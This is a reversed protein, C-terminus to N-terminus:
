LGNETSSGKLLQLLRLRLKEKVEVSLEASDEGFMTNYREYTDMLKALENLEHDLARKNYQRNYSITPYYNINLWDFWVRWLKHEANELNTAKRRILAALKDDYQEIQEGSRSARVLDESRLMAVQSLKQVKNDILERIESIAALEPSKFDFVHTPEGSLSAAVLVKSGPEAGLNGGNIQDTTEDVITVPHAGYTIAAYIEAMDGYISRQIQAVDTVVTTGVNNYVKVSQYITTLPIYGLENVQVIRWAGDGLDELNASDIEPEYDEDEGVWVTEFSDATIHRYVKYDDAEELCIVVSELSLSGDERYSYKWNTIEEPKHIRWKPVSNGEPKICSVHCVGYITTYIDVLAMFENISNGEGDVNVIFDEVENNVPLDRQPPNRFLISNYESVILKVYNYLPTNDLKESYFSGDDFNSNNLDKASSVTTVAATSKGIVTGSDDTVYTNITESPTSLDSSYQRLYKGNKWETGGYYADRSLKWDKIYREYLSHRSTVYDLYGM